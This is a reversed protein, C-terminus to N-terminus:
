DVGRKPSWIVTYGSFVSSFTTLVIFGIGFDGAFHAAVEGKEGKAAEKWKGAIFGVSCIILLYLVMFIYLPINDWQADADYEQDPDAMTCCFRVFVQALIAVSAQICTYRQTTGGVRGQRSATVDAGNCEAGEM